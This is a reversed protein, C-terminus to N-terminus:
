PRSAGPSAKLALRLTITDGKKVDQLESPPFHVIMTGDSTKVHMWGDKTDVKTVEGTVSHHDLTAEAAEQRPTKTDTRAPATSGATDRDSKAPTTDRTSKAPATSDAALAYAPMTALGVALLAALTTKM